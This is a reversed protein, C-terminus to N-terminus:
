RKGYVRQNISYKEIKPEEGTLYYSSYKYLYGDYIAIWNIYPLYASAIYNGTDTDFIDVQHEPIEEDGYEMRNKSTFVFLYNRDVILAEVAAQFKREDVVKRVLKNTEDQDRAQDPNRERYEQDIERPEWDIEQPEYIHQISTEEMTELDLIHITYTPTEGEITSDFYSHCYAIRKGPLATVLLRGMFPLGVGMREGWIMFTQQYNAIMRLTDPTEHFLFVEMHNRNARDLDQSDISYVKEEEGLNIIVEPRQPRLNKETLVDLFPRSSMFNVRNIYSRDPRFYHATFGFRGGFVTYYGNPSYWINRINDFEGPGEGSGGLLATPHGDSDYVKVYDEDVIMIEGNNDVAFGRPRVLMYDDPVDSAGFSHEFTLVDELPPMSASVNGDEGNRATCSILNIVSATGLGILLCSCSRTM